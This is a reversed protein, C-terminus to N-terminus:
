SWRSFNFKDCARMLLDGTAHKVELSDGVAVLTREPPNLFEGSRSRLDYAYISFGDVEGLYQPNRLGKNIEPIKAVAQDKEKTRMIFVLVIVSSKM